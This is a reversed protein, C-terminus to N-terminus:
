YQLEYEKESIYVSKNLELDKKIIYWYNNLILMKNHQM